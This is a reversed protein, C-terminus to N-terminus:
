HIFYRVCPSTAVAPAGADPVPAIESDLVSLEQDASSTQALCAGPRRRTSRATELRAQRVRPAVLDRLLVLGTLLGGGTGDVAGCPCRGSV